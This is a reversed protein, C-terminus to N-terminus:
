SAAQSTQATVKESLAAKMYHHPLYDFEVGLFVVEDASYGTLVDAEISVALTGLKATEDFTNANIIGRATRELVYPTTHAPEHNAIVTDLATAPAALAEGPDAQDYLALFTVDDTAAPTGDCAWLVRVGIEESLDAVPLLEPVLAVVTDGAAAISFGGFGLSNFENYLPDGAGWGDLLVAAGTVQGSIFASAPIRQLLRKRALNRDTIM